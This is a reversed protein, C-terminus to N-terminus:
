VKWFFHKLCPMLFLCVYVRFLYHHIDVQRTTDHEVSFVFHWRGIQNIKNLNQKEVEINKCNKRQYLKNKLLYVDSRDPTTISTCVAPPKRPTISCSRRLYIIRSLISLSNHFNRLVKVPCLIPDGADHESKQGQERSRIMYQRFSEGTKM